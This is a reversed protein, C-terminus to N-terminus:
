SIRAPYLIKEMVTQFVEDASIEKMCRFHGQPCKQHGHIGCPRCPLERQLIVSNDGYPAFGFEPVTSGFIAVVPKKMAGALHVPASDNSLVVKSYSILAASQLVSLKGSAVLAQNKMLRSIYFSLDEEEPSGILAVQCKGKEILLDAVQAFRDPLWRKTGWVSGPAIVILDTHGPNIKFEALLNEVIRHDEQSPFVEPSKDFNEPLVFDLLALNREIEHIDQRYTIKKHLFRAGQSTDFGIRVPIKAKKALYASRFSRHPILAVGFNKKRLEDALSWLKFINGERRKDYIVLEDIRFNNELVNRTEPIVLCALYSQPFFTKVAKILPTVLIVDGLYATQILLIRKNELIFGQSHKEM